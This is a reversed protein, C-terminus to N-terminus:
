FFYQSVTDRSTQRASLCQELLQNLKCLNYKNEDKPREPCTRWSKEKEQIEAHQTMRLDVCATCGETPQSSHWKEHVMYIQKMEKSM